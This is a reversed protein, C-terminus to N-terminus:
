FIVDPTIIREDAMQKKQENTVQGNQDLLAQRKVRSRTISSFEAYLYNVLKKKFV